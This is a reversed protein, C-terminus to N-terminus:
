NTTEYVPRKLLVIPHSCTKDNYIHVIEYGQEEYMSIHAVEDTAADYLFIEGPRKGVHVLLHRLLHQFRRQTRPM